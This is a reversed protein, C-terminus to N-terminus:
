VFDGIVNLTESELAEISGVNAITDHVLEPPFDGDSSHGNSVAGPRVVRYIRGHLSTILLAENYSIVGQPNAYPRADAIVVKDVGRFKMENLELLMKDTWYREDQHRRYETGWLQLIVRSTMAEFTQYGKARLLEKFAPDSCNVMALSRQPYIKWENTRLLEVECGYAAAVEAYLPNAFASKHYGYERALFDAVTDKGVRPKGHLGIIKM